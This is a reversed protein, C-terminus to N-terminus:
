LLAIYDVRLLPSASQNLIGVVASNLSVNGRRRTVYLLKAERVGRMYTKVLLKGIKLFIKM